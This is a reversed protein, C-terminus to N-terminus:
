YKGCSFDYYFKFVLFNREVFMEGWLGGVLVKCLRKVIVVFFVFVIIYFNGCYRSENLM